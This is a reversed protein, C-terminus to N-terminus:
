SEQHETDAVFPKESAETYYLIKGLSQFLRKYGGHPKLFSNCVTCVVALSNLPFYLLELIMKWSIFYIQFNFRFYDLCFFQKIAGTGVKCVLKTKFGM